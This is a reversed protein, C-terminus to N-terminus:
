AHSRFMLVDMQLLRGTEADAFAPVVSEVEFGARRLRDVVSWWLEQGEYLPVLSLECQIGALRPLLAPAGDLVKPEYGQVDLKLFANQSRAVYEMAVDDLRRVPVVEETRYTARPAAKRLTDTGPLLSSSVLNESVNLTAEGEQDGIAMRPAVTWSPDGGAARCLKAHAQSIPEFSVIRGEFGYRRLEAGYQGVNAGVDLVLDIRHHRLLRRLAGIPHISADVRQLDWGARTLLERAQARVVKMLSSTKANM